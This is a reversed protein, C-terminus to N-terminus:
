HETWIRRRRAREEEVMRQEERGKQVKQRARLFTALSRALYILLPAAPLPLFVHPLSALSVDEAIIRVFHVPARRAAAGGRWASDTNREVEGEFALRSRLTV